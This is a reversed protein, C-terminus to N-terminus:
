GARFLETELLPVSSTTGSIAPAGSSRGDFSYRSPESDGDQTLCTIDRNHFYQSEPANDGM